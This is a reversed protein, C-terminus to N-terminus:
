APVPKFTTVLESYPALIHDATIFRAPEAMTQAILVRDFPDAHHRPLAAVRSATQAVLPLEDFGTALAAAMTQDPDADFGSRGLPSKIAIEWISIASFLVQNNPDVLLKRVTQPLRAPRRLAWLLVHTDLLIYM